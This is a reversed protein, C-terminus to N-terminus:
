LSMCAAYDAREHKIREAYRRIMERMKEAECPTQGDLPVWTEPDAPEFPVDGMGFTAIRLAYDSPTEQAHKTFVFGEFFVPHQDSPQKLNAARRDQSLIVARRKGGMLKEIEAALDPFEQKICDPVRVRLVDPEDNAMEHQWMLDEIFEATRQVWENSHKKM